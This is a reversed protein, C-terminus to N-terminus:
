FNHEIITCHVHLTYRSLKQVTPLQINVTMVPLALVDRDSWCKMRRLFSEHLDGEREQAAVWM